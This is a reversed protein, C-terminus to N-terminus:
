VAGACLAVREQRPRTGSWRTEFVYNGRPLEWGTGDLHLTPLEWGAGDLHLTLSPMPTAWRGRQKWFPTMAALAFCLDLAM